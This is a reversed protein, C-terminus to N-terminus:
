VVTRPPASALDEPAALAAAIRQHFHQVAPENRGYLFEEPAARGTLTRQASAAAAFDEALIVKETVRLNQEWM